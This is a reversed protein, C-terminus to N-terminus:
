NKNESKEKNIPQLTFSLRHNMIDVSTTKVLGELSKLVTKYTTLYLKREIADPVYKLNADTSIIESEIYDQLATISVFTGDRNTERPVSVHSDLLKEYENHLEIYKERLEEYEKRLTQDSSLQSTVYAELEDRTIIGDSNKDIMNALYKQLEEKTVVDQQLKKVQEELTNNTSLYSGM